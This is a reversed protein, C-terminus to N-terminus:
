FNTIKMLPKKLINCIELLSDISIRDFTGVEFPVSM